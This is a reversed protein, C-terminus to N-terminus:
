RLQVSLDEEVTARVKEQIANIEENTVNRLNGVNTLVFYYIASPCNYLKQNGTWPGILSEIVCAGNKRRQISSTM